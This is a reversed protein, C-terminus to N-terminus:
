KQNGGRQTKQSEAPTGSMFTPIMKKIGNIEQLLDQKLQGFMGNLIDMNVPQQVPVQPVDQSIRYTLIRSTGDAQLQKTYIVEGNSQPYYVISGSMDVNKAKVVDISDVIEGNLGFSIQQQNQQNYPQFQNLQQQYQAMRNQYDMMPQQQYGGYLNYGYNMPYQAM